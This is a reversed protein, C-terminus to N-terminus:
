PQRPTTAANEVTLGTMLLGPLVVWRDDDYTVIARAPSLAIHDRTPVHINRGDAMHITFPIFKDEQLHARIDGIM